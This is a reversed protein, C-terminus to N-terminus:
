YSDAIIMFHTALTLQTHHRKIGDEKELELNLQKTQELPTSAGSFAIGLRGSM